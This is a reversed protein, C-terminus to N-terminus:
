TQSSELLQLIEKGKETIVLYKSTGVYVVEKVFQYNLLMSIHSDVTKWDLDLEKALQLRTKPVSLNELIQVRTPSGRMRSLLKFSDYDYGRKSWIGRVKGKWMLAGLYVGWALPALYPSSNYLTATFIGLGFPDSPPEIVSEPVLPNKIPPDSPFMAPLIFTFVINSLGLTTIVISVALIIKTENGMASNQARGLINIRKGLSHPCIWIDLM